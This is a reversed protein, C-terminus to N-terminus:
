CNHSDYSCLSPCVEETVSRLRDRVSDIAYNGLILRLPPYSCHAIQWAVEASRVVSVPQRDGLWQLMRVAHKAPAHEAAYAGSASEKIRFAAYPKLGMAKSDPEDLRMHGPQVLTAKINFEAVEYLLSELLGEVAFKAASFPGLGPVGLAGATSSFILYRGSRNQRFHPLTADLINITGFLNTDFQSHLDHSDQDECAGLIGFGVCSVLTLSVKAVTPPHHVKCCCQSAGM